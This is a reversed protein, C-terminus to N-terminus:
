SFQALKERLKIQAELHTFCGVALDEDIKHFNYSFVGGNFAHGDIRRVAFMVQGEILAVVLQFTSGQKEISLKEM